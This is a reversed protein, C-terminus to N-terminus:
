KGKLAQRIKEIFELADGPSIQCYEKALESSVERELEDLNLTDISALNYVEFPVPCSCGSDRATFLLGDRSQWVVRTDFEYSGASYDIECITKLGYKEPNYYINDDM